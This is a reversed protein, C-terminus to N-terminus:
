GHVMSFTQALFSLAQPPSRRRPEERLSGAFRVIRYARHGSGTLVSSSRHPVTVNKTAFSLDVPRFAEPGEREVMQMQMQM